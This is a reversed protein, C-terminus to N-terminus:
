VSEAERRSPLVLVTLVLRRGGIRAARASFAALGVGPPGTGLETTTNSFYITGSSHVVSDNPSDFMMGMYSDAVITTQGCNGRGPCLPGDKRGGFPAGGVVAIVAMVVQRPGRDDATVPHRSQV